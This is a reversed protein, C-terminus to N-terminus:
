LWRKGRRPLGEKSSEGKKTTEKGKPTIFTGKGGGLPNARKRKVWANQRPYLRGEEEGNGFSRRGRKKLFQYEVQAAEDIKRRRESSM